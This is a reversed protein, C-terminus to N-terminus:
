AEDMPAAYLGPIKLRLSNPVTKLSLSARGCLVLECLQPCNHSKRPKDPKQMLVGLLAALLWRTLTTQDTDRSLWGM